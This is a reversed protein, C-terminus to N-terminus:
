ALLAPAKTPSDRSPEGNLATSTASFADGVLSGVGSVDTLFRRAAKHKVETNGQLGELGEQM